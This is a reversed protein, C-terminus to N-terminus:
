REGATGGAQFVHNEVLVLRSHYDTFFSDHEMEFSVVLNFENLMM